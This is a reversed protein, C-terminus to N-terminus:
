FGPCGWSELFIKYNKNLKSINYIEESSLKFKMVLSNEIIRNPKKSMFIPIAGSDIQWRLIIQGVNVGYKEALVKLMTNNKLDPHMRCLPSYSFVTINNDKCYKMEENCVRLPHREIQINKPRINYEHWKILHRTRVNCIGIDKVLGEKQMKLFCDWTKYILNEFPWHVWLIDLYDFDLKKLSEIVFKRVNGQTEYMQWVDIKDSVFFDERKLGFEDYCTRIARGLQIETAYSPATDFGMFGSKVSTKVVNLLTKYEKNQFTGILIPPVTM